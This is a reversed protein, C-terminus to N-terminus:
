PKATKTSETSKTPRQLRTGSVRVSARYFSPTDIAAVGVMCTRGLMHLEITEGNPLDNIMSVIAGVPFHVREPTEGMEFLVQGHVLSVLQLHPELEAFDNASLAALISNHLPNM